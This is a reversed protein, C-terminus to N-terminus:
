HVATATLSRALVAPLRSFRQRGPSPDITWTEAAVPVRELLDRVSAAQGTLGGKRKLLLDKGETTLRFEDAVPLHLLAGGVLRQVAQEIEQATFIAHNIADGAGIIETLSAPRGITALTAAFWADSRTWTEIATM